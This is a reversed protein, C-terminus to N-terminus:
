RAPSGAGPPRVAQLLGWVFAATAGSPLRVQWRTPVGPDVDVAGPLGSVDAVVHEWARLRGPAARPVPSGPARVLHEHLVAGGAATVVEFRLHPWLPLPWHRVELELDGHRHARVTEAPGLVATRLALERPARPSHHLAQWRTHAAHAAARDAGLRPLAAAVLDPRLDAMRRLLVLCFERRALGRM